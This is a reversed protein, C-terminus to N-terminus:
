SLKLEKVEKAKVITRALFETDDKLLSLQTNLVINKSDLLNLDTLRKIERDLEAKKTEYQKSLEDISLSSNLERINKAYIYLTTTGHNPSEPDLGKNSVIFVGSQLIYLNKELKNEFNSEIEVLDNDIKGLLDLHNNLIEVIGTRLHVRVKNTNFQIKNYEPTSLVVLM